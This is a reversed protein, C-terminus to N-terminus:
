SPELVKGNRVSLYGRSVQNFQVTGSTLNLLDQFFGEEKEVESYLTYTVLDQYAKDLVKINSNILFNDLPGIYEYALKIQVKNHLVKDVVIAEDLALKCGKTYARVLGGKGLLTGGFYRTVVVVVEKLGEAELTSLIPMGATHSPEGDDDFRKLNEEIVYASCNHTADKHKTKIESIFDEAEEQSKVPKAYGIFKSKKEEFNGEGYSHISRYRYDM